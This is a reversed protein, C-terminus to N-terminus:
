LSRRWGGSSVVCKMNPAPPAQMLPLPLPHTSRMIAQVPPPTGKKLSRTLSLTPIKSTLTYSYPFRDIPDTFPGLLGLLPIKHSYFNLFSELNLLKNMNLLCYMHLLKFPICIESSSIQFSYSKDSHFTFPVKQALFPIYSHLYQVKKNIKPDLNDEVAFSWM